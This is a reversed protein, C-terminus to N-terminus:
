SVPSVSGPKAAKYSMRGPFLAVSLSLSLSLALASYTAPLPHHRHTRAVRRSAAALQLQQQQQTSGAARTVTGAGHMVVSCRRAESDLILDEVDDDDVARRQRDRGRHPASPSGTASRPSVSSMLM